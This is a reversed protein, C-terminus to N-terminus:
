KGYHRAIAANTWMMASDICHIATDQESSAPAIDRIFKALQLCAGRVLEYQMSQEDSVPRHYMFRNQLADDTIKEYQESM